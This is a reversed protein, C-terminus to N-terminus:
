KNSKKDQCHCDPDHVYGSEKESTFKIYKHKNYSFTKVTFTDVNSININTVQQEKSDKINNNEKNTNDCFCVVEIIGFLILGSCLIMKIKDDM